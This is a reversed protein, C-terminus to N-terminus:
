GKGKGKSGRQKSVPPVGVRVEPKPGSAAPPEAPVAPALSPDDGASENGPESEAVPAAEVSPSADSAPAVARDRLFREASPTGPPRRILAFSGALPGTELVEVMLGPVQAYSCVADLLAGSGDLPVLVARVLWDDLCARLIGVRADLDIPGDILALDFEGYARSVRYPVDPDAGITYEKLDVAVHQCRPLLRDRHVQAWHPDSEMTTISTAGGEVLALTSSGPGFELVRTAGLMRVVDVVAGYDNFSWWHQEVPYLEFTRNM